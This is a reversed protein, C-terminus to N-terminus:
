PRERKNEKWQEIFVVWMAIGFALALLGRLPNGCRIDELTLFHPQICMLSWVFLYGILGVALHAAVVSAAAVSISAIILMTM